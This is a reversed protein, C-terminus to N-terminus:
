HPGLYHVEKVIRRLLPSFNTNALFDGTVFVSDKGRHKGLEELITTGGEAFEHGTFVLAIQRTTTAGRIIAGERLQSSTSAKSRGCAFSWIAVFVGFLAITSKKRCSFWIFSARRHTLQALSVLAEQLMLCM